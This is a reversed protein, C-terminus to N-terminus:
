LFTYGRDHPFPLICSLLSAVLLTSNEAQDAGLSQLHLGYIGGFGGFVEVLSYLTEDWFVVSKM